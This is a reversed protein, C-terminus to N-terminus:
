AYEHECGNVDSAPNRPHLECKICLQRDPKKVLVKKTVVLEEPYEHGLGYTCGKGPNDVCWPTTNEPVKNCFTCLM